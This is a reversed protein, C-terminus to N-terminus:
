ALSLLYSVFVSQLSCCCVSSKFTVERAKQAIEQNKLEIENERTRLKTEMEKVKQQWKLKRQAIKREIENLHNKLELDSMNVSRFRNLITM